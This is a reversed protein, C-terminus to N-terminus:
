YFNQPDRDIKWNPNLDLKTIINQPQNSDIVINHHYKNHMKEILNPSSVFKINQSTLQAEIKQVQETLKNKQSHSHLLRTQRVFPPYALKARWKLEHEYFQKSNHKHLFEFIPNDIQWTQIVVEGNEHTRNTRGIVQKFLAISRELSRFDPFHLSQDANLIGILNIDPFDLGQAIIQTGLIIDYEKNLISQYVANHSNKGTLQDSDIQLIRAKPFFEVLRDYVQQIGQVFSRFTKGHCNSCSPTYNYTLNCLHCKLQTQSKFKHEVVAIDCNQCKLNQGCDQCHLNRAFGKKTYLLLSQKQLTLNKELKHLLTETFLHEPNAKVHNRLCVLTIEPEKSNKVKQSLRYYCLKQDTKAAKYIELSPTASGYVVKSTYIKSLFQTIARVHYRPNTDQKYAQDHEEDVIILGLNKFPLFSASRSGLFITKEQKLAALHAELRETKNLKSNYIQVQEVFASNLYNYLQPTLNIEPVLFLIQQNKKLAEAILHCYIETKGSGTVGHILHLLKPSGLINQFIQSQDPSLQHQLQYQPEVPKNIESNRLMKLSGPSTLKPPLLLKYCIEPACIYFKAIQQALRIQTKPVFNSYIVELVPRTQFKPKAIKEIVIGIDEKKRIPVLVLDGPSLETISSYTLLQKKSLAILYYHM